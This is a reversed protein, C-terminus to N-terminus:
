REKEMEPKRIRAKKEKQEEEAEKPAAVPAELHEAAFVEQKLPFKSEESEKKWWQEEYFPKTAIPQDNLQVEEATRTEVRLQAAEPADKLTHSDRIFTPERIHGVKIAEETMPTPRSDKAALFKKNEDSSDAAVARSEKLANESKAVSNDIDDWTGEIKHKSSEAAHALSKAEEESSRAGSLLTQWRAVNRRADPVLSRVM